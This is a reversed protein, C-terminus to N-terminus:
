HRSELLEDLWLLYGSGGNRIDLNAYATCTCNAKCAMECEGLTMSVNYWSRRTDPVKVGSIKWFGDGNGNDSENGNRCHLPMKCICGSAWDSAGWEDPNRPEFGDMCSCPPHKNISCIGYPGCLSYLDCTDDWPLVVRQVVSSKLEYKHYIEKKNMVFETSYIQNEKEVPFGSFGLGNWPGLREKVIEGKLRINQPYGNIDHINMYEGISPDDPSKWSTMHWQLGTVLDKGFKM